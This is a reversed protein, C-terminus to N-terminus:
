AQYEIGLAIPIHLLFAPAINSRRGSRPDFLLDFEHKAVQAQDEM